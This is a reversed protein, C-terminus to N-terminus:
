FTTSGSWLSVAREDSIGGYLVGVTGIKEALEPSIITQYEAKITM